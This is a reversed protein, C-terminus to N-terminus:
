HRTELARRVARGLAERSFPKGLFTVGGALNLGGPNQEAFGSILLVRMRPRAAVLREALAPGGMRPMVVDTALLHIPGAHAAARVLAEVGNEAEIVTYGLEELARRAFTRVAPEDEVLLVTESGIPVAALEAPIVPADAEAEVRPLYITFTTGRGPESHLYVSGGSQSVIGEVTALGMGSGKGPGKTTFFPEFAHARTEADMGGGSDSVQLVVYRGSGVGAHPTPLSGDADANVSEVRLQGGNPMADRANVALNVIVQELQSPDVRVRGLGPAAYTVLEIHEGLLRRLMPALGDVIEAPALVQPVLVQRRGFALLQRTLEAARDAALVVQDIDARAETNPALGQRILESYGRIATILNNFDHAIGGALQGVAEMKQAQRLQDELAQERTVDRKVGVYSVLTGATDFIPQIVADERYLAGDKRRNVLTGHWTQGARLTSWMVDYFAADHHGSQLTRPNGGILEARNYGSVREFSPNVYLITGKPDTIVIAEDAQEVAAALRAQEREVKERETIDTMSVIIRSLSVESGPYVSYDVTVTRPEGGLTLVVADRHLRPDGNWLCVLEDRFTEFLQPTFTALIGALMEEKTSAGHLDLTARNVDVVRVRAACERVDEPHQALHGMLDVVGDARLRDFVAKVGTFDEEWMSVPSNEFVLRYRRESEVLDRHTLLATLGDELRRGIEALLRQEQATWTRAFSCQHLGFQWPKGVKPRVAVSMFSRFGFREAADAPLPNRTGPGFSVPGEADLLVRLTRAVDATMPMELNLELAGPYEPRNREMPVLWTPADPDCPYMLFARDCGFIPLLVGLVDSLMRDLDSAGQIARSVRDLGELFRLHERRETIDRALALNYGQGDFEFYSASIEVPVFRGDKTRHRGEFVRSGHAQLDAWHSSWREIPFDPDIDPVSMGLLQPRTYGLVRCTEENVFRFRAESDILFAAERVNDLAFGMLVLNGEARKRETIDTLMAFFGAFRGEEDPIPAASIHTWLLGGDPRRFRRDYHDSAGSRRAAIRSRHDPVDEAFLFDTISRGVLEDVSTGLMEALRANALTMTEGDAALGLIGEIAMDFMRRYKAESERLADQALRRETIDRIVAILRRVAGGEDLVPHLASELWREGAAPRYADEWRVAAGTEVCRRFYPLLREAVDRPVVDEFLRGSANASSVDLLREAAANIGAIRYRGEASVDFVLLADWLSDFVEPYKSESARLAEEAQRREAEPSRGLRREAAEDLVRRVTGPLLQLRDKLVYDSAGDRLAELALAAGPVGSVLICPVSADWERAIAIARSGPFGPLVLAVLIVQPAFEPLAARFSEEDGVVRCIAHIGGDRLAREELEAHDVSDELILVSLPLPITV